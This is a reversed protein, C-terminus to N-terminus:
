CDTAGWKSMLFGDVDLACGLGARGDRWGISPGDAWFDEPDKGLTSNLRSWPGEKTGALRGRAEVLEESEDAIGGGARLNRVTGPM